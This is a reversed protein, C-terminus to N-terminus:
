YTLRVFLIIYINVALLFPIGYKFTWKKTKHHFTYMSILGGLSGGILSLVFLTAEPIRWASRQAKKKDIFFILFTLLNIFALYVFLYKM